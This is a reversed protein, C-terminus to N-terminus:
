WIEYSWLKMVHQDIKLISEGTYSNQFGIL